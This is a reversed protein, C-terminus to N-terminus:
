IVSKGQKERPKWQTTLTYNIPIEHYLFNRANSDIQKLNFWGTLMSEKVAAKQLATEECGPFFYVM